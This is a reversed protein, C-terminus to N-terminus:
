CPMSAIAQRPSIIPRGILLETWCGASGSTAHFPKWPLYLFARPRWCNARRACVKRLRVAGEVADGNLLEQELYGSGDLLLRDVLAQPLPESRQHNLWDALERAQAQFVKPLPDDRLPPRSTAADALAVKLRELGSRRNAQVPVVPVGLRTGLAQVDIEIKRDRALDVMNLAVVTPLGLSL